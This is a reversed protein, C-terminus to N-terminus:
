DWVGEGRGVGGDAVLISGGVTALVVPDGFEDVQGERAVVDRKWVEPRCVGIATILGATDQVRIGHVSVWAEGHRM